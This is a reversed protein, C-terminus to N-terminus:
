PLPADVPKGDKQSLLSTFCWALSPRRRVLVNVQAVVDLSNGGIEVPSVSMTQPVNEPDSSRHRADAPSVAAITVM